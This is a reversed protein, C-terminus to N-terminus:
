IITAKPLFILMIRVAKSFVALSLFRIKHLQVADDLCRQGCPNACRQQGHGCGGLFGVGAEQPLLHLLVVNADAELAHSALKIRHNRLIITVAQLSVIEVGQPAKAPHEVLEGPRFHGGHDLLKLSGLDNPSVGLLGALIGNASKGALLLHDNRELLNVEVPLQLLFKAQEGCAVLAEGLGLM